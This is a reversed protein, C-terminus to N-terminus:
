FNSEDNRSATTAIQENCVLVISQYFFIAADSREECHRILPNVFEFM